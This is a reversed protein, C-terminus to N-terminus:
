LTANQNSLSSIAKTVHTSFYGTYKKHLEPLKWDDGTILKRCLASECSCPEPTWPDELRTEIDTMAYDYTIEEDAEIDRMAVLSIQGVFGANPDCSHNIRFVGELHPKNNVIHPYCYVDREIQFGYYWYPAMKPQDIKSIHVSQGSQVILCEDKKIKETAFYGTGEIQSTRLELKPHIYSFSDTHTTLDHNM